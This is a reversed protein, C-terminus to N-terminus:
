IRLFKYFLVANILHLVRLIKDIKDLVLKAQKKVLDYIPMERDGSKKSRFINTDFFKVQGDRTLAINAEQMDPFYQSFIKDDSEGLLKIFLTRFKELEDVLAVRHERKLSVLWWIDELAKGVDLFGVLREQIEYLTFKENENKTVFFHSPVILNPLNSFYKKMEAQRKKLVMYQDVLSYDEPDIDSPKYEEPDFFERTNGTAEWLSAKNYNDSDSSLRFYQKIVYGTKSGRM